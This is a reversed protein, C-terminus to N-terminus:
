RHRAGMTVRAILHVISREQLSLVRSSRKEVREFEPVRCFQFQTLDEDHSLVPLFGERCGMEVHETHIVIVLCVHTGDIVCAEISDRAEISGCM